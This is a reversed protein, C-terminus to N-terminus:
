AAHGRSGILLAKYGREMASGYSDEIGKGEPASFEELASPPGQFILEGNDLVIIQDCIALVDDVLHTSILVSAYRSYARLTRRIDMRVEPDLGATPEDLILLKPEHAMAAAIGVRQRQGGSLTSVRRSGLDAMALQELVEQARTHCEIRALGNAWAAYAITDDVRMSGVLSYRQSLVGIEARIQDLNSPISSDVGLIKLTGSGATRRTSVLSM